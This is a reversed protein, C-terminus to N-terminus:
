ANARQKSRGKRGPLDNANEKKKKDKSKMMIETENFKRLAMIVNRSRRKTEEILAAVYVRLEETKEEPRLVTLQKNNQNLRIFFMFNWSSEEAVRGNPGWSANRDKSSTIKDAIGHVGLICKTETAEFM